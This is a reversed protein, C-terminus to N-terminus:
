QKAARWGAEIAEAASCFWREGKAPSIKTKEYHQQGPSHFIKEGDSAINGKIRCAGPDPAAPGRGPATTPAAPAPAPAPEASPTPTPVPTPSAPCRGSWLGRGAARAQQEAALHEGRHQYVAGYLYETSLGQRIMEVAASEGSGMRVHRVLRGYRDRDDQTPDRELAVTTGGVLDRMGATAEQFGCEGVEPTDLGIIRVREVGTSLRVDLTDGDVVHTVPGRRSSSVPRESQAPGPSRSASPDAPERRHPRDAAPRSASPRDASPGQATPRAAVGVTPKVSASPESVPESSAGATASGTPSAPASGRTTSTPSSALSQADRSTTSASPHQESTPSATAAVSPPAGAGSEGADGGGGSVLGFVFVVAAGLAALLILLCGCGLCGATTDEGSSPSTPSM